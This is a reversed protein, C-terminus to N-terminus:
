LYDGMNHVADYLMTELDWYIIGGNYKKYFWDLYRCHLANDPRGYLTREQKAFRGFEVNTTLAPMTNMNRPVWFVIRSVNLLGKDEWEVQYNYDNSTSWDKREPVFVMGEFKLNELINIAAPRWSMVDTSRPTPGALFISPSHWNVSDISEDACYVRMNTPPHLHHIQVQRPLILVRHHRITPLRPTRHLHLTQHMTHHHIMHAM